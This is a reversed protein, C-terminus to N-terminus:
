GYVKKHLHKENRSGHQREASPHMTLNLKDMVAKKERKSSFPVPEGTKPDCINECTQEGGKSGLYLDPVSTDSARLGGCENCVEIVGGMSAISRTRYAEKNGCGSCVM